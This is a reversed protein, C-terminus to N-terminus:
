FSFTKAKDLLTENEAPALTALGENYDVAWPDSPGRRMQKKIREM